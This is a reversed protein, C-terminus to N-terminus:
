GDAAHAAARPACVRTLATTILAGEGAVVALIPLSSARECPEASAPQMGRLVTSSSGPYAVARTWDCPRSETWRHGASAVSASGGSPM